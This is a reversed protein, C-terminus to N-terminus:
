HGTDNEVNALGSLIGKYVRSRGDVFAPHRRKGKASQEADYQEMDRIERAILATTVDDSAIATFALSLGTIAMLANIEGHLREMKEDTGLNM